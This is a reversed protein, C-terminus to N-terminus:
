DQDLKRQRIRGPEIVTLHGEITVTPDDVCKCVAYAMDVASVAFHGSAVIILGVSSAGFRVVLEGFGVDETLLVRGDENAATLVVDDPADHDAHERQWVVDHGADRLAKVIPGAVCSDAHLRL